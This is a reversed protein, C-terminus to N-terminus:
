KLPLIFHSTQQQQKEQGNKFHIFTVFLTLLFLTVFFIKSKNYQFSQLKKFLKYRNNKIHELSSVTVVM